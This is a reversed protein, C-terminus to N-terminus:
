NKLPTLVMGKIGTYTDLKKNKVGQCINKQDQNTRFTKFIRDWFIFISGYSSNYEEKKDSHHIRHVHPTAFIFRLPKDFFEPFKINSHHFLIVPLLVMEYIILQELTMGIIPIIALRSTSSIFLEGPHFRVATTSDMTTDTHHMLHFRWLFPIKHAAVHWCYMWFDFLLVALILTTVASLTLKHLLGFEYKQVFFTLPAFILSIMVVNFLGFSLNKISHNKLNKKQNYFPIINELAFIIVLSALVVIAKLFTIDEFM